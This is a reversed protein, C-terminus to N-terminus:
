LQLFRSHNKLWQKQKKYGPYHHGLLEYFERSHNMHTLHCIEHWMVYEMAEPQCMAIKSNIYIRRKSNCSGWINKQKKVKLTFAPLRDRYENIFSGVM